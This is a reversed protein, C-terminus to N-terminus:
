HRMIMPQILLLYCALSFIFIICYLPLSALNRQTNDNSQLKTLRKQALRLSFYSGLYLTFAQFIHVLSPNIISNSHRLHTELRNFPRADIGLPNSLVDFFGATEMFFHTFNHAIHYSLALPLLIISLTRFNRQYSDQKLLKSTVRITLAYLSSVIVITLFMYLSFTTLLRGSDNILVATRSVLSEWFPLMTVGHFLTLSFLVLLFWSESNNIKTEQSLEQNPTVSKWALNASPCSYLCNGCSICYSHDKAKGLTVHTPCAEITSSGHYCELSTCELCTNTDIPLIKTISLKSYIGITRGIPCFYQCFSKREFVLMSASALFIVLLSLLATALPSTTIGWGLELWTLVIFFATALHINRFRRPMTLGLSTIRTTKFWIRQKCIWNSLTDWPCVSCWFSGLLVTFLIILSWWVTWTLMTALNKAPLQTGFLGSIITLIFLAAIIIKFSLLFIKRKFLINLSYPIFGLLKTKLFERNKIKHILTPVGQNKKKLSFKIAVFVLILLCIEAYLVPLGVHTMMNKTDYVLHELLM